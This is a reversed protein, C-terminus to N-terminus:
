DGMPSDKLAQEMSFHIAGTGVKALHLEDFAEDPRATEKVVFIYVIRVQSETTELTQDPNALVLYFETVPRAKWLVGAPIPPDIKVQIYNRGSAGRLHALVHCTRPEPSSIYDHSSLFFTNKMFLLKPLNNVVLFHNM